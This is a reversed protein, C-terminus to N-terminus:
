AGDGGNADDGRSRARRLHAYMGTTSFQVGYHEATWEVVERVSRFAGSEYRRLLEQTQEETLKSRRGPAAHGPTRKLMADLGGNRYWAVWRQVSRYHVGLETSVEEIRSGQRVMLLARLRERRRPNREHKLRDALEEATHNWHVRLPRGRM